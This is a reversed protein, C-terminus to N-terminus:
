EEAKEKVLEEEDANEEDILSADSNNLSKKQMSTLFNQDKGTMPEMEPDSMWSDTDEEQIQTSQSNLFMDQNQPLM